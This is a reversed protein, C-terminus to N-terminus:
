KCFCSKVFRILLEAVISVGFVAVGIGVTILIAWYWTCLNCCVIYLIDVAVFICFGVILELWTSDGSLSLAGICRLIFKVSKLESLDILKKNSQQQM